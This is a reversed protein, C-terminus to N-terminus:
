AGPAADKMKTHLGFERAYDKVHSATDSIRSRAYDVRGSGPPNMGRLYKYVWSSGGVVAVGFVCISLFGAVSLFIVAVIPFWIPISIIIMPSLFILGLVTTTVTLGALLLLFAASIFFTLYGILATSNPAHSQLKQILSSTTTTTITTPNNHHHHIDAM